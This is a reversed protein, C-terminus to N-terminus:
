FPGQLFVEWPTIYFLGVLQSMTITLCTDAGSQNELHDCLYLCEFAHGFRLPCQM